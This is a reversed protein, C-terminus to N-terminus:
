CPSELDLWRLTDAENLLQSINSAFAQFVLGRRKCGLVYIMSFLTDFELLDVEKSRCLSHMSRMM